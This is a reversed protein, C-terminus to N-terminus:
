EDQYVEDVHTDPISDSQRRRAAAIYSDAEGLTYVTRINDSPILRGTSNNIVGILMLNFKAFPNQSVLGCFARIALKENQSMFISTYEGLEFDYVGFVLDRNVFSDIGDVVSDELVNTNDVM